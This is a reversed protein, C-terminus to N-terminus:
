EMVRLNITSFKRTKVRRATIKMPPIYTPPGFIAFIKQLSGIVGGSVSAYTKGKDDILVTRAQQILEGTDEDAIQVNHILVDKLNIFSGPNDDFYTMLQYDADQMAALKGIKNDAALSTWMTLAPANGFIAAQDSISNNVVAVESSQNDEVQTAEQNQDPAPTENVTQDKKNDKAM